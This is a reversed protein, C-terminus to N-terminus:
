ELAKLGVDRIRLRSSALSFFAVFVLCLAAAAGIAAAQLPRPKVNEELSRPSVLIDHKVPERGEMQNLVAEYRGVLATLVSLAVSKEPNTFQLRMVAGSEPFDVSINSQLNKLPLKVAKSVSDLVAYSRVVASQTAFFQESLEGQPGGYFVFEAQAAYIPKLLSSGVYAATAGLMAAAIAVVIWYLITRIQRGLIGAGNVPMADTCRQSGYKLDRPPAASM